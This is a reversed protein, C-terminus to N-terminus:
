NAKLFEYASQIDQSKQKALQMMEPPLGQSVLKDPHNQAMLKRYAKKITHNDADESLGLVNLAATRSLGPESTARQDQNYQGQNYQDQEYGQRAHQYRHFQFEAIYRKLIFKFHTANIGIYQSVKKLLEREESSLEGDSFAMQIQIEIFLQLLDYRGAFRDRFENCVSKLPFDTDKGSRFANQAEIRAEGQLAMGDMFRSAANIHVENVRGNSKAIYGMVSFCTYSFLAQKESVSGKDFFGQFGGARNFDQRLGRDFLHGLYFGLIAGLWKGFLFGFGAGLIKGWM